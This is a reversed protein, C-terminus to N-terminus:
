PGIRHFPAQWHLSSATLSHICPTAEINIAIWIKLERCIGMVGLKAYKWYADLVKCLGSAAQTRRTLATHYMIWLSVNRRNQLAELITQMVQLSLLLTVSQVALLKWSVVLLHVFVNTWMCCVAARSDKHSDCIVNNLSCHTIRHQVVDVSTQNEQRWSFDLPCLAACLCLLWMAGVPVSFVDCRCIAM